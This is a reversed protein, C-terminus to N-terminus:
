RARSPAPAPLGPAQRVSAAVICCPTSAASACAQHTSASRAGSTAAASRAGLLASLALAGATSAALSNTSSASQRSGNSHGANSARSRSRRAPSGSGNGCNGLALASIGPVYLASSARNMASRRRQRRASNVRIAQRSRACHVLRSSVSASSDRAASHASRSACCNASRDSISRCPCGRLAAPSLWCIMMTAIPLSPPPSSLKEDSM